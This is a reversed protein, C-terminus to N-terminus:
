ALALSLSAYLAACLPIEVLGMGIVGVYPTLRVCVWSRDDQDSQKIDSVNIKGVSDSFTRVFVTYPLTFALALLPTVLVIVTLVPPFIWDGQRAQLVISHTLLLVWLLAFQVFYTWWVIKIAQYGALVYEAPEYEMGKWSGPWTLPKALYMALPASTRTLIPLSESKRGFRLWRVLNFVVVLLFWAVVVASQFTTLGLATFYLPTMGRPPLIPFYLLGIVTSLLLIVGLIKWRNLKM